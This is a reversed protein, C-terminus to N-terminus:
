SYDPYMSINLYHLQMNSISITRANACAVILITCICTGSNFYGPHMLWGINKKKSTVHANEFQVWAVNALVFTHTINTATYRSHSQLGIQAAVAAGREESLHRAWQKRSAAVGFPSWISVIGADKAWQARDRYRRIEGVIPVRALSYNDLPAPGM